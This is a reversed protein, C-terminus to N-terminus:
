KDNPVIGITNEGVIVKFGKTYLDPTQNIMDKILSTAEDISDHIFNVNYSYEDCSKISRDTVYETTKVVKLKERPFVEHPQNTFSNCQNETLAEEWIISFLSDKLKCITETTQTWRHKSHPISIYEYNSVLRELECESLIGGSSIRELMISEFNKDYYEQKKKQEEEKLRLKAEKEEKEKKKILTEEVLTPLKEIQSIHLDSWTKGSDRILKCTRNVSCCENWIKDMDEWTLNSKKLFPKIDKKYAM